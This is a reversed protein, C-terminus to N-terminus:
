FIVLICSHYLYIVNVFFFLFLFFLFVFFLFVFFLFFLIEIVIVFKKERLRHCM